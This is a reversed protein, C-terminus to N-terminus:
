GFLVDPAKEIREAIKEGYRARLSKMGERMCTERGPMCHTDTAVFDVLEQKFIQDFFRRYLLPMKRTLSRANIQVLARYRKKMEWVDETRHIAPYREMHAIIPIVGSGAVKQVASMIHEKTDTPSFEILAYNTGAMTTVAKERLLRPTSETYLIEAGRYLVLPLNNGAIYEQAAWFHEQFIEEPFEYVGPTVHPTCVIRGIGDEVAAHLMQFTEEKTEAGDDVGWIVHSHIDTYM